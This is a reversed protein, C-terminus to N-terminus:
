YTGLLKRRLSTKKGKLGIKKRIENQKIQEVLATVM